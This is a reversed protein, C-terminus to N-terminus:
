NKSQKDKGKKLGRKGGHTGGTRQGQSKPQSQTAHKAKSRKFAPRANDDADSDDGEELEEGAEIDPLLREWSSVAARKSAISLKENSVNTAKKLNQQILLQTVIGRYEDDSQGDMRGVRLQMMAAKSYGFKEALLKYESLRKQLSM